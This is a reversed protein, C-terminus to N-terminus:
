FFKALFHLAFKKYKKYKKASNSSFSDVLFFFNLFILKCRDAFM